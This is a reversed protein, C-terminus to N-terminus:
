ATVTEEPEFTLNDEEKMADLDIPDTQKLLLGEHTQRDDM